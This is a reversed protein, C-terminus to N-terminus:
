KKRAIRISSVVVYFLVIPIMVMALYSFDEIMLLVSLGNLLFILSVMLFVVASQRYYPKKNMKEREEKSAYLYANNFLKGKQMFHMVSIGYCAVAILLCVVLVIKEM